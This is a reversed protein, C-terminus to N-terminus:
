DFSINSTPRTMRRSHKISNLLSHKRDIEANSKHISCSKGRISDPISDPISHSLLTTVGYLIVMYHCLATSM